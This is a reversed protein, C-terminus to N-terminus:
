AEVSLKMRLNQMVDKLARYESLLRGRNAWNNGEDGVLPEIFTGQILYPDVIAIITFDWDDNFVLEFADVFAALRTELENLQRLDDIKM